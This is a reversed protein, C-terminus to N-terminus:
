TADACLLGFAAVDIAAQYEAYSVYDSGIVAWRWDRTLHLSLATSLDVQALRAGEPTHTLATRLRALRAPRETPSLVYITKRLRGAEAIRQMEWDLGSTLGPLVIIISAEDMLKLVAARWENEPFYERAAGAPRLEGPRGIGIFPGFPRVADTIVREISPGGNRLIPKTEDNFSRLFLVPPRPDRKRIEKLTAQSWPAIRRTIFLAIALFTFIVVVSVTDIVDNEGQREAFISGWVVFLGLWVVAILGWAGLTKLTSSKDSWLRLCNLLFFIAVWPFIDVNRDEGDIRTAIAAAAAALLNLVLWVFRVRHAGGRHARLMSRITRLSHGYARVRAEKQKPRIIELWVWIALAFPLPIFAFDERESISYTIGSITGAAIAAILLTWAFRAAGYLSFGGVPAGSVDIRIHEM